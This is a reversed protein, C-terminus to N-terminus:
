FLKFECYLFVHIHVEAVLEALRRQDVGGLKGRLAGLDEQLLLLDGDLCLILFILCTVVPWLSLFSISFNSFNQKRNGYIVPVCCGNEEIPPRNPSKEIQCSKNALNSEDPLM